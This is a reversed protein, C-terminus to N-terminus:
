KRWAIPKIGSVQQSYAWKEIFQERTLNGNQYEKV